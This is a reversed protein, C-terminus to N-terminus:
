RQHFDFVEKPLIAHPHDQQDDQEEHRQRTDKKLVMDIKDIM